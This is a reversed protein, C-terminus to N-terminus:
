IANNRVSFKIDRNKNKVNDNTCDFKLLKEIIKEKKEEQKEDKM